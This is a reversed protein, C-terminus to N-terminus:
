VIETVTAGLAQLAPVLRDGPQVIFSAARGDRRTVTLGSDTRGARTVAITAIDALPTPLPQDGGRNPVILLATPTLVLRAILANGEGTHRRAFNASGALGAGDDDYPGLYLAPRSSWLRGPVDLARRTQRRFLWGSLVAILVLTGITVVVTEVGDGKSERILAAVTGIITVVLLPLVVPMLRRSRRRMAAREVALTPDSDPQRRVEVRIPSPDM